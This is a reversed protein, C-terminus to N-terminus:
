RRACTTKRPRSLIEFSSVLVSLMRPGRVVDRVSLPPRHAAMPQAKSVCCCCCLEACGMGQTAEEGREAERRERTPAKREARLAGRDQGNCCGRRLWGGQGEVSPASSSGDEMEGELGPGFSGHQQLPPGHPWEPVPLSLGFARRVANRLIPLRGPLLQTSTM